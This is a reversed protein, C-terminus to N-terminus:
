KGFFGIPRLASEGPNDLFLVINQYLLYYSRIVLPIQLLLVLISVKGFIFAAWFYIAVVALQTLISLVIDHAYFFVLDWLITLSLGLITTGILFRTEDSDPFYSFLYLYGIVAFIYAVIWSFLGSSLSSSTTNLKKYWETELGFAYIAIQFLFLMVIIIYIVVTFVTKSSFPSSSSNSSSSSM